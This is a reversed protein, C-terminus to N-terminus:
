PWSKLATLPDLMFIYHTLEQSHDRITHDEGKVRFSLTPVCSLLVGLELVHKFM